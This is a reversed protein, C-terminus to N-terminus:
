GAPDGSAANMRQLDVAREDQKRSGRIAALAERSILGESAAHMAAYESDPTLVLQAGTQSVKEALLDLAEVRTPDPNVNRIYIVRVRNPYREVVKSYIEPDQEGSDGILIFQM